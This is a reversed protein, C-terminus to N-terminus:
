PFAIKQSELPLSFAKKFLFGEKKIEYYYM